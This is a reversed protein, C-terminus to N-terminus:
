FCDVTSTAGTRTETACRASGRALDHADSEKKRQANKATAEIVAKANELDKELGPANAPRNITAALDAHAPLYTWYTSKAGSPWVATVVPTELTTTNEPFIYTHTVPAVGLVTTGEYITAGEPKSEFTLMGTNRSDTACGSLLITLTLGSFLAIHKKM